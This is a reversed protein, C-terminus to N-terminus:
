EGKNNSDEGLRQLTRRRWRETRAVENFTYLHFGGVNSAPHTVVPTLDNLLRGPKSQPTILRSMWDSPHRLFCDKPLHGLAEDEIGDLASM